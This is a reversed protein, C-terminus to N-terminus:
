FNKNLEESLLVILDVQTNYILLDLENLTFSGTLTGYTKINGIINKKTLLDSKNIKIEFNLSNDVRKCENIDSIQNIYDDIIITVKGNYGNVKVKKNFWTEAIKILNNPVNEGFELKKEVADFSISKINMIKKDISYTKSSCGFM